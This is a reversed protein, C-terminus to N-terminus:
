AARRGFPWRRRRVPRADRHSTILENEPLLLGTLEGGVGGTCDLLIRNSDVHPRERVVHGSAIPVPCDRPSVTEDLDKRCLWPPRHLTFDRERLIKLQTATPLEPTLGAHVCIVGPHEVVWPLATLLRAHDEPVARGLGEFDGPAVGYSRFTTECQYGRRWRKAWQAEAPVPVLDLAGAMALDHNGCVITTRPHAAMLELVRAIVGRPDPGRDVLDGLLVIWRDRFDGRRALRDVLRDFLDLQGHVDGILAVPGDIRTAPSRTATARDSDSAPM